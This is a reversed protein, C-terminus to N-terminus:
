QGKRSFAAYALFGALALGAWSVWMPVIWSGISAHWRFLLRLAHLIAVLLFITGAVTNFARQTM